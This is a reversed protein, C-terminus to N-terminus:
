IKYYGTKIFPIFEEPSPDFIPFLGKPLKISEPEMESPEFDNERDPLWNRNLDKAEENSRIEHRGGIICPSLVETKKIKNIEFERLKEQENLLLRTGVHEIDKKTIVYSSNVKSGLINKFEQLLNPEIPISLSSPIQENQPQYYAPNLKEKLYLSVDPQLEYLISKSVADKVKQEHSRIQTRTRPYLLKVIEDLSYKNVNRAILYRLREKNTWHDCHYSTNTSNELHTSYNLPAESKLPLISGSESAEACSIPDPNPIFFSSSRLSNFENM